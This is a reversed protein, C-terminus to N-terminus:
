IQNFQSRNGLSIGLYKLYNGLELQSPEWRKIAEVVDVNSSNISNALAIANTAAKSLGAATHPRPVFAADGLICVRGFAMKPVSLDYITQIFPENTQIVLQGFVTPLISEAIGKQQQVFDDTVMGQPVSFERQKGYRDTLLSQLKSGVPVNVYWVWNLRHEGESLEGTHGPILYCLIHTNRGHFFTFKNAFFQAFDIPVKNEDVVGRWAVYGAYESFVDPLLQQRVTSSPGDAGVLLDSRDNHGDEFEAVM